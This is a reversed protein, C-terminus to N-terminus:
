LLAVNRSQLVFIVSEIVTTVKIIGIVGLKDAGVYM